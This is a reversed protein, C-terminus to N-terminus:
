VFVFLPACINRTESAAQSRCSQFVYTDVNDFWLINYCPLYMVADCKSCTWVYTCYVLMHKITQVADAIVYVQTNHTTALTHPGSAFHPPPPAPLPPPPAHVHPPPAHAPPPPAPVPPPPAPLPALSPIQAPFRLVTYLCGM